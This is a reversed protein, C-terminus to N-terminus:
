TSRLRNKFYRDVVYTNTQYGVEWFWDKSDDRGQQHDKERDM